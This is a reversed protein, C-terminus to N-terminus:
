YLDDDDDEQAQDELEHDAQEVEGEAEQTALKKAAKKAAKEAKEQEATMAQRAEEADKMGGLFALFQLFREDGDLKNTRLYEFSSRLVPRTVRPGGESRVQSPTVRNKGDAQARELGQRLVDIAAPGHKRLTSVALGLVVHGDEVLARIEAPAAAYYLLDGVYKESLQLRRAIDAEAVSYGIMRKCVMAVEFPRLPSATNGTVLAVTLDEMSTGAPKTVMPVSKIEAGEEIALLLAEHRTHGDTLYVIDKGDDGRAAFGVLPKDRYFGNALISDAIERVRAQYGEDKVRVNFGEYVRIEDVPVMWMDSAVAGAERMARKIAGQIFQIESM